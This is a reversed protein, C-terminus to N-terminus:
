FFLSDELPPLTDFHHIRDIKFFSLARRRWGEANWMGVEANTFTTEYSCSGSAQCRFPM